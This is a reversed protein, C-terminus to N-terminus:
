PGARTGRPPYDFPLREGPRLGDEVTTLLAAAAAFAPIIALLELLPAYNLTLDVSNGVSLHLNAFPVIALLYASMAVAGLFELPGYARTPKAVYRAAGLFALLLGVASITAVGLSSSVGRNGLQELAITPLGVWFVLLPLMILAGVVLRRALSPVQARPPAPGNM